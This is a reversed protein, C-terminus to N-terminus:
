KDPSFKNRIYEVGKEPMVGMYLIVLGSVPYFLWNETNLFSHFSIFLVTAAFSIYACYKLHAVWPRTPHMHSRYARIAAGIMVFPALWLFRWTDRITDHAHSYFVEHQLRGILFFCGLAILGLLFILIKHQTKNHM